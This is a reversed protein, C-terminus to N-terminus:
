DALKTFRYVRFQMENALGERSDTQFECQRSIVRYTREVTLGLRSTAYIAAQISDTFEIRGETIPFATHDRDRLEPAYYESVKIDLAIRAM